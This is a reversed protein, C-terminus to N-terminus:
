LRFCAVFDAGLTQVPLTSSRWSTCSVDQNVLITKLNGGNPTELVEFKDIDSCGKFLKPLSEFQARVPGKGEAFGVPDHFVAALAPTYQMWVEARANKRTGITRTRGHADPERKKYVRAIIAATADASPNAITFPTILDTIREASKLDTAM